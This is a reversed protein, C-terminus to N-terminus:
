RAPSPRGAGRAREVEERVADPLDPMAALRDWASRALARDGAATAALALGRLARLSKPSADAEARFLAVATADDGLLLASQALDLRGAAREAEPAVASFALAATLARRGRAVLAARAPDAPPLVAIRESAGLVEERLDAAVAAALAPRDSEEVVALVTPDSAAGTDVELLVRARVVAPLLAQSGPFRQPFTRLRELAARQAAPDLTSAPSALPAAGSAGGDAGTAASRAAGAAAGTAASKATGAAAPPPATRVSADLVVVTARADAPWDEHALATALDALLADRSERGPVRAYRVVRSQLAAVHAAVKWAPADLADFGAIAADLDGAQRALEARRYAAEARDDPTTGAVRPMADAAAVLAASTAADPSAQWAAYATRLDLLALERSWARGTGRLRDLAARAGAVDGTAFATRALGDLAAPDPTAAGREVAQRYLVVAGAADGRRAAGDARLLLVTADADAGSPLLDEHGALLGLASSRWPEGAALLAAVLPSLEDSKVPAKGSLLIQLRLLKARLALDKSIGQAAALDALADLARTREGADALAQALAFRARPGVGPASAAGRLDALGGDRDGAAIRALGRGYRAEGSLTADPADVFPTFGDIAQRALQAKDPDGALVRELDIAAIRFRLRLLLAETAKWQQSAVVSSMDIDREAADERQQALGRSADAALATARRDLEALAAPDRKPQQTLQTWRAEIAAMEREGSAVEFAAVRWPAALLLAVAFAVSVVARPISRTPVVM